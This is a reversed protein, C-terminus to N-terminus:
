KFQRKSFSDVVFSAHEIEAIEKLDSILAKRIKVNINM